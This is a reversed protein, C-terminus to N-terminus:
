PAPPHDSVVRAFVEGVVISFGPLLISLAVGPQEAISKSETTEFAHNVARYRQTERDLSLVMIKRDRPDVIWYEPIGASEYEGRKHVWDREPDVESVVEMVLDVGEWYQNSRRNAHSKHMFVVDPERFRGEAIRVRLPAFLCVGLDNQSVFTQLRELLFAVILPHMETPVPLVELRGDALEVFHNTDLSLYDGITWQGQPPFLM